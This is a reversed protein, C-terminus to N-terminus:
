FVPGEALSSQVINTKLSFQKITQTVVEQYWSPATPSIYVTDVLLELDITIWMGPAPNEKMRNNEILPEQIVARVENEHVFSIRKHVYPWFTNGEPIVATKYDIYRVLGVHCNSPLVNWLKEFTTQIAIAEETKAYLRWMAASEYDNMHWCNVYTCKQFMLHGATWEEVAPRGSFADTFQDAILRFWELNKLTSSGEFPDGLLDARSFYLGSQILASVFKTFDM